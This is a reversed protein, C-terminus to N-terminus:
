DCQKKIVTILNKRQETVRDMENLLDPIKKMGQRNAIAKTRDQFLQSKKDLKQAIQETYHRSNEALELSSYQEAASSLEKAGKEYELKITFLPSVEEIYRHNEVKYIQNETQYIIDKLQQCDQKEIAIDAVAKQPVNFWRQPLQLFFQSILVTALTSVGFWLLFSTVTFVQKLYVPKLKTRISFVLDIVQLSVLFLIIIFGFIGLISLATLM